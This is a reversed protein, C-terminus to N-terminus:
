ATNVSFAKCIYFLEFSEPPLFLAIFSNPTVIDAVCETRLEQEIWIEEDDTDSEDTDTDSTDTDSGETNEVILKVEPNLNLWYFKRFCMWCLFMLTTKNPNFWRPLLLDYSTNQM